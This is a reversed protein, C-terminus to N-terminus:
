NIKLQQQKEALDIEELYSPSINYEEVNKIFYIIVIVIVILLITQAVTM